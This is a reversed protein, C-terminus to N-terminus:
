PHQFGRRNKVGAACPRSGLVPQDHCGITSETGVVNVQNAVRRRGSKVSWTRVPHEGIVPRPTPPHVPPKKGPSASSFSILAITKPKTKSNTLIEGGWGSRLSNERKLALGLRELLENTLDAYNHAARSDPAFLQIPEHRIPCDELKATRHSITNFIKDPLM